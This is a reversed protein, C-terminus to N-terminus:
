IKPDCCSNQEFAMFTYRQRQNNGILISRVLPMEPLIGIQDFLRESNFIILIVKDTNFFIGKLSGVLVFSKHRKDQEQLPFAVM